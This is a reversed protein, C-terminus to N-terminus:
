VDVRVPQSKRLGDRQKEAESKTERCVIVREETDSAFGEVM